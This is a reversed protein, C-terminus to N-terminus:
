PMDRSLNSNKYQVGYENYYFLSVKPDLFYLIYLSIM